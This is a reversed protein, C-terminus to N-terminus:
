QTEKKKEKGKNRKKEKTEKGKKTIRGKKPAGRPVEQVGRPGKRPGIFM